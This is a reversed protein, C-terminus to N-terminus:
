RGLQRHWTHLTGGLPDLVQMVMIDTFTLAGWGGSGPVWAMTTWMIVGGWSKAHWAHRPLGHHTRQLTVVGNPRWWMFWCYWIHFQFPHLQTIPQGFVASQQGVAVWLWYQSCWWWDSPATGTKQGLFRLSTIQNLREFVMASCWFNTMNSVTHNEFVYFMDFQIPKIKYPVQLHCSKRVEDSMEPTSKPCKPASKPM